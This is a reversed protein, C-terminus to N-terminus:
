KVAIKTAKAGVKVIYIGNSLQGNQETVDMGNITYIRGQEAGYIRGSHAYINSMEVSEIATTGGIKTLNTPYFQVTTNYVCVFGEIDYTGASIIGDAVVGFNDRLILDEGLFSATVNQLSTGSKTAADAAFSVNKLLLYKNVDDAVPVAAAETPAPATGATISLEEITVQPELEPLAKYVKTTVVLGSVEDGAKLALTGFVLGVGSADKVYISKGNVYVVTVPSLYVVTGDTSYDIDALSQLTKKTFTKSVVSSAKAKAADYAIAKVTTTATLDFPATYETSATTPETGDITYYIKLGAEATITVSTSTLFDAEGSISPTLVVDSDVKKYIVVNKQTGGYVAFRESNSTANYQLTTYTANKTIKLTFVDNTGVTPTFATTESEEAFLKCNNKTNTNGLFNDGIKICIAGTVSTSPVITLEYAASESLSSMTITGSGSKSATTGSYMYGAATTSASGEARMPVIVGSNATEEYGIIMTGGALLDEVTTVRQWAAFSLSSFMTAALFLTLKKM